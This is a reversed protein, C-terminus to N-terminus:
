PKTESRDDRHIIFSNGKWDFKHFETVKISPNKNLWETFAKREGRNPDGRFSFWDDFILITGNQLYDTIFDLVPVTSEYLDCDVWVVAAAKLPLKGKTEENLVKDYWGPVLTARNLDVGKRSIIRRFEEMDCAFTGERFHAFGEGDIGKIEPLGQFSDFAYFNMSTLGSRQAFYYASVFSDGRNVGFELYDGALRSHTAFEMALKMMEERPTYTLVDIFYSYRVAPRALVKYLPRAVFQLISRVM